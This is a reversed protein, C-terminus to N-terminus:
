SGKFYQSIKENHEGYNIISTSIYFKFNLVKAQLENTNRKM